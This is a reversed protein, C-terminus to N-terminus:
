SAKLGDMFVKLVANLYASDATERDKPSIGTLNEIVHRSQFWHTTLALSMALINEPEIDGRIQGAAQAQRIKDLLQRGVEQGTEMGSPDEMIQLWSLLRSMQPNKQFFHFRSSISHQAFKGIDGEDLDLLQQQHTLYEDYSLKKVARWLAEKSGFYHHIMSQTVGSHKAIASMSTGAFGREIFLTQASALIRAQSLEPNNTRTPM